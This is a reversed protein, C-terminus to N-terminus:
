MMLAILHAKTLYANYTGSSSWWTVGYVHGATLTFSGSRLLTATASSTSIQSASVIANATMDWLAAYVVGPASATYISSELAFKQGTAWNSNLPHLKAASSSFTAASASGKPLFYTSATNANNVNAGSSYVWLPIPEEAITNPPTGMTTASTTSATYQTYGQM